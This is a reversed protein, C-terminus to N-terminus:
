ERKTFVISSTISKILFKQGRKVLRIFVVSRGKIADKDSKARWDM